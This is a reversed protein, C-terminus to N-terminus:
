RPTPPGRSSHPSRSWIPSNRRAAARPPAKEHEIGYRVALEMEDDREDPARPPPETAVAAVHEAAERECWAAFDGELWAILDRPPYLLTGDALHKM